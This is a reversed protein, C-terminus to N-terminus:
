PASALAELASAIQALHTICLIQRRRALAAGYDALTMAGPRSAERAAVAAFTPAALPELDRPLELTPADVYVKFGFPKIEWELTHGSSRVSAPSHATRDHYRRAVSGDQTL